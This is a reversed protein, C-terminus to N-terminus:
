KSIANFEIFFNFYRWFTCFLATLRGTQYFPNPYFLGVLMPEFSCKPSKVQEDDEFSCNSDFFEGNIDM